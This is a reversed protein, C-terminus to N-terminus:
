RSKGTAVGPKAPIKLTMGERVNTSGHLLEPNADRILMWYGTAGYVKRSIAALTDGKQAKYTSRITAKPTASTKTGNKATGTVPVITARGTATAPPPVATARAADTTVATGPVAATGGPQRASAAPPNAPATGPEPGPDSVPESVPEASGVPPQVSAEGVQQLKDLELRLRANEDTLKKARQSFFYERPTLVGNSNGTNKALMVEVDAPFRDMFQQLITREVRELFKKTREADDSNPAKQLYARYHFVAGVPDSLKDECLMALQLNAKASNPSLRLCKEFAEAAETYKEEQRLRMGRLYFPNRDDLLEGGCGSMFLPLVGAFFLSVWLNIGPWKNM